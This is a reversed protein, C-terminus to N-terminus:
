PRRRGPRNAPRRGETIAKAARDRWQPHMASIEVAGWEDSKYVHPEGAAYAGAIAGLAELQEPNM